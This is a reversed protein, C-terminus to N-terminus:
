PADDESPMDLEVGDFQKVFLNVSPEVDRLSRPAKFKRGDRGLDPDPAELPQRLLAKGDTQEFRQYVLRAGVDQQRKAVKWWSDLLDKVRAQLYSNIRAEEDGSLSRHRRARSALVDSLGEVNSREAVMAIAGRPPTLAARGHRALAVVLAPLARDLARPAFPTVSTAEVARYFSAHFAEFREYHSRDRPRHVNLLTVVLGPKSEDRGVRSTAQIYEATAKPQGLVVMLGLRAIDLGVSIMNTALAVDVREKAGDKESFGIALRRKTDSVKDTSERSTLECVDRSIERNSFSGQIEGIRKRDGYALVRSAVEDEVIRRSGGLERLSNFYGVLTMYPDAPNVSNKAGGAEQWCRETAALLALYTRLLVVKLSRGQAAVGVYERGPRDGLPVSHAFFSTRRGPGPSPFVEVGARTFLARIQSDARRVTATSAVIKPRVQHGNVTRTCLADIATEYLGAMTGLPGSILHLEDQIILDPPALSAPLKQGVNPEWAGYFGAADYCDAGGLLAGSAGTWPLSAFKDVTAIAFCPVRRYLPEDVAVIPLPNKGRFRCTPSMCLVRLDQPENTDTRWAGDATTRGLQFSEPKLKTGCWPCTEVPIPAARRSNNRHRITKARATTPDNEGMRGMRNPTAAKGVWLGIEFPWSGLRQVMGPEQRILELACVLTTARGLQDLTLLRLTYRMLVTVGASTVSPDRLRRLLIAFAALGLYAETKGGGTPFFLLDVLERDPHSPSVFARLNMLIFALQFPRWAPPDVDSPAVGREMARRQRAAMAMARNALRFADFVVEDDLLQLGADIREAALRARQLLAEVVEAQPGTVQADERQEEIWLRYRTSLDGLAARATAADPMAALAEMGLAVGDMRAPEVREVEAQPMWTTDVRCCGTGTVTGRTSTGHGVAYEMVDRYQLDAIREDPDNADRGRPNPRPVFATDAEITLSVQFIFRGDKLEDKGEIPVRRNVLFVSVARTGAPLGVLDQPRLIRRVLTMVELGGSNPVAAVLPDANDNALRVPLTERREQRHWQVDPRAGVEEPEYEGWRATIRLASADAPVLVSVGLSSPFQGRRAAPPESSTNDEDGRATAETLELEGQDDDDQKQTVPAAWPALFGTLYWRSPPAPLVENVQPEDPDPGILDLRLARTLRARVDASTM